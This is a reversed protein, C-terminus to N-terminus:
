DVQINLKQSDYSHNSKEGKEKVIIDFIYNGKTIGEAPVEIILPLYNTEAAKITQPTYVNKAVWQQIQTKDVPLTSSSSSLANRFEINILFTNERGIKNKVALALVLTDGSKAKAIPRSIRVKDLAKMYQKVLNIEEAQLEYSVVEKKTTEAAPMAQQENPSAQQEIAQSEKSCATVALLLVLLMCVVYQKTQM